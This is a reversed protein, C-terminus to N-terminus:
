YMDTIDKFSNHPNSSSSENEWDKLLKSSSNKKDSGGIGYVFRWGEVGLEANNSEVRDGGNAFVFDNAKIQYYNKVRNLFDCASGDSDDFDWVSDVWKIALVIAKREEINMFPKGKKRTLWADSNVGVVLRDGLAAAQRLMALHGSHIPDFGGSVAVIRM